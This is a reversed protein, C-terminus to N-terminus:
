WSNYALSCTCTHTCTGQTLVRESYHKERLNQHWQPDTFYKCHSGTAFLIGALYPRIYLRCVWNCHRVTIYSYVCQVCLWARDLCNLESPSYGEIAATLGDASRLIRSWTNLEDQLYAVKRSFSSDCDGLDTCLNLQASALAFQVVICNSATRYQVLCDEM